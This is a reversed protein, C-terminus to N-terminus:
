FHPFYSTNFDSVNDSRSLTNLELAEEENKDVDATKDEVEVELVSPHSAKLFQHWFPLLIMSSHNLPLEHKNSANINFKIRTISKKCPSQM